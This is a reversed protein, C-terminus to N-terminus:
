LKVGGCEDRNTRGNTRENARARTGRGGGRARAGEVRVQSFIKAADSHAVSRMARRDRRV